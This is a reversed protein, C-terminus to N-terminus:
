FEFYLFEEGVAGSTAARVTVYAMAGVIPAVVWWPVRRFVDNVTGDRMLYHFLVIGELPILVCLQDLPTLTSRWASELGALSRYMGWAQRSDPARFLVLTVTLLTFCLLWLIGQGPPSKWVALRRLRSRRLGLQVVLFIGNLLGFLLFNWTAGHWVGCLVLTVILNFAVRGRRRRYGGLPVFVYDHLWRTLTIHWRSWFDSVSQMALPFRFNAPLMFGLCLGLGVACTSYGSFDCYLQGVFGASAVWADSATRPVDPAYVRNVVPAFLSDALVVKMFLGLVVFALGRGLQEGSIRKPKRCQPLFDGARVIPGAILQPFFAVYLAFDLFSPWPDMRRRYVDITYSLTQFTYFSIGLPLVIESGSEPIRIAVGLAAALRVFEELVAHAYKFYFLLGLNTMLSFLLCARRLRASSFAAMGRAAVWDVLTSLVILFVFPPNWVAYFLYSAALLHVKRLRWPLPLAYVALVVAFFALFELSNFLM